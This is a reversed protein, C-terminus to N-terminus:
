GRPVPRRGRERPPPPPPPPPPPHSLASGATFVAGDAAPQGQEAVTMRVTILVPANEPSPATVM